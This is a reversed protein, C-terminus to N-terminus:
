KEDNIKRKVEVSPHFTVVKRSKIEHERGTM